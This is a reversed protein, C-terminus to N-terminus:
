VNVRCECEMDNDGKRTLFAKSVGKTSSQVVVGGGSGFAIFNSAGPEIGGIRNQSSAHILVGTEGNPLIPSGVRDTGILNGHVNTGSSFLAIEVGDSFNASILNRDEPDRGGLSSNSENSLYIGNDGNGLPVTGSVDTGIFCGVITCSGFSDLVIGNGTWRNVAVGEIRHGSPFVEPHLGMRLGHSTGNTGDIEIKLVTDLGGAAPVTNWSSGPQSYGDIFVTDGIGPLDSSPRISFWSHPWDPDIDTIGADDAATTTAVSASTVQGAVGDNRYYLHGPDDPPIAFDITQSGPAIAACVIANRLSGLGSDGSNTVTFSCGGLPEARSFESTDNAPTTRPPRITIDTATATVFSQGAPLSPLVVNIPANGATDTDIELEGLFTQGEGFNSPDRDVNAFFEIRFSSNPTSQLLGEVTTGSGSLTVSDLVPYNQLNNPGTDQDPPDSEPPIDNTNFVSALDIGLGDNEFISNKTILNATGGGIHVGAGNFAITNEQVRTSVSGISVGQQNGLRHLGEVDAGIINGELVNGPGFIGVVDVGVQNGSIVNQAGPDLGGIANDPVGGIRVGTQTTSLARMGSRDTGILNGQILNNTAGFSSLSVGIADSGNNASILNRALLSTGGILNGPSGNIHVGVHAASTETSDVPLLALSGSVDPGLYNGELRSNGPVGFPSELWIKPGDVRNLALGRVVNEGTVFRVFGFRLRHFILDQTDTGDIEIRLVSNLGQGVPNTNEVAGAQTYGDISVSDTIEPLLSQPRISYWSHPWDPDIDAINSDNAESTVAVSAPTVQGAVGDDRYFLHGPDSPPIDFAITDTVGVSANANLIAPRFSDPGSDATNTVTLTAAETRYQLLLFHAGLLLFKTPRNM